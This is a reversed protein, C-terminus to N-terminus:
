VFEVVQELPSGGVDDDEIQHHGPAAAHTEQALQVCAAIRDRDDDEGALNGREHDAGIAKLFGVGDADGYRCPDRGVFEDGLDCTVEVFGITLKHHRWLLYVAEQLIQRNLADPSDALDNVETKDITDSMKNTDAYAPM